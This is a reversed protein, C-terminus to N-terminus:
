YYCDTWHILVGTFDSGKFFNWFDDVSFFGDNKALTEIEPKSLEKGDVTVQIRDNFLNQIDIEQIRLAPLVPAFQLRKKTRNNIVFHIKNGVKWRKKPDQRITHLKMESMWSFTYGADQYADVCETYAIDDILGNQALGELIQDVFLTEKGNIKTSFGLTM